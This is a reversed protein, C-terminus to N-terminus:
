VVRVCPVKRGRSRVSAHAPASRLIAKAVEAAGIHYTGHRIQERLRAIKEKRVSGGTAILSFSLADPAAPAGAGVVGSKRLKHARAV